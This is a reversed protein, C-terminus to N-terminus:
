SWFAYPTSTDGIMIVGDPGTNDPNPVELITTGLIHGLGERVKGSYDDEQAYIRSLTHMLQYVKDLDEVTPQVDPNNVLHTFDDFIPHFIQIPPKAAKSSSKGLNALTNKYGLLV